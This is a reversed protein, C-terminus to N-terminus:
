GASFPVSDPVCSAGQDPLRNHVLYESATRVACQSQQTTVHGWGENVVLRSNPLLRGMREASWVPTAPDFRSNMILVPHKTHVPWGGVGLPKAVVPWGVCPSAAYARLAGFRPARRERERVLAHLGATTRPAQAEACTVAHFVPNLGTYPGAFMGAQRLQQIEDALRVAAPAAPDALADWASRLFTAGVQSWLEPQYLWGGTWSVVYSYDLWVRAGDSATLPLPAARLRETLERFQGAPDGDGFSCRSGAAACLRFFEALTQETAIDTGIRSSITTGPAGQDRRVPDLVSDFVFRGVREPFLKAYGAGLYTGYSQGLYNLRTQGLAARLVDLDRAMATSHLQALLERSRTHCGQAYTRDARMRAARQAADDPIAPVSGALQIAEPESDFCRVVPDAHGSGRGDVGILDYRARVRDDVPSAVIGDHVQRLYDVASYGPGGRNIVLAGIRREPETAPARVLGLTITEGEPKAYDLPVSAHACDLEPADACSAWDLEPIAVDPVGGPPAPQASSAAPAVLGGLWSLGFLVTLLVSLQRPTPGM